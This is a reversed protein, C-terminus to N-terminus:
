DSRVLRYRHVAELGAADRVTTWIRALSGVRLTENRPLYMHGRPNGTSDLVIWPMDGQLDRRLGLWISHDNGVHLRELPPYYTPMGKISARIADALGPATRRAFFENYASDLVSGPIPVARFPYERAWLTMGASDVVTLAFVHQREATSRPRASVIRAGDSSIADLGRAALPLPGSAALRGGSGYRVYYSSSDSPVFAVLREITGRIAASVYYGGSVRAADGGSVSVSTSGYALVRGGPLVGVVLPLGLNPYFASDGPMPALPPVRFERVLRLSPDVLTMRHPLTQFVWL